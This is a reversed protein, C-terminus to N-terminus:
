RVGGARTTPGAESCVTLVPDAPRHQPYVCVRLSKHLCIIGRYRPVSSLTWSMVYYVGKCCHHHSFVVFSAVFLNRAATTDLICIRIRPLKRSANLSRLYVLSPGSSPALNASGAQTSSMVGSELGGAMVGSELGGAIVGSELGGAPM